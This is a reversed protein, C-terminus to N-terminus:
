NAPLELGSDRGSGNILNREPKTEKSGCGSEGGRLSTDTAVVGAEATVVKISSSTQAANM